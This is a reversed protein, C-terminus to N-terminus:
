TVSIAKDSPNASAIKRLSLLSSRVHTQPKCAVLKDEGRAVEGTIIDWYYDSGIFVDINDQSDMFAKGTKLKRSVQMTYKNNSIDIMTNIGFIVM